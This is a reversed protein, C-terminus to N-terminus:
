RRPRPGGAAPRQCTGGRSGPRASAASCWSRAGVRVAQAAAELEARIEHLREAGFCEAQGMLCVAAFASRDPGAVPVAFARQAGADGPNVASVM